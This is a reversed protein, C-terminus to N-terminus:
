RSVGGGVSVYAGTSGAGGGHPRECAALGGALGLAALLLLTRRITWSM